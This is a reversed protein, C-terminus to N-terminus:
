RMLVTATDSNVVTGDPATIRLGVTHQGDQLLRSTKLDFQFTDNGADYTACAGQQNGDFVLRVRCTPSLLALASADSIRGGTATALRFKVPITAGRQYTAKSFSAPFGGLVRYGVVYTHTLSSDNGALDEADVTFAKTGISATDIASGDAVPGDCTDIESGGPEDECGYDALVSAGIEYRTGPDPPTTITITPATSDDSSPTGLLVSVDATFQNAIVLDLAGDSNLLDLAIAAAGNGAENTVQTAFTGDGGGLLVSVDDIDGFYNTVALDLDGDGDLDGTGLGIPTDGTAYEVHTPFGGTGDGLLVSVDTSGFGNAVAVDLDTDGDFDGAVVSIPAEGADHVVDTDFTGDGNGLLIAVGSSGASAVALDLNADADFHGTAISESTSGAPYNDAAAFTGDGNGLLVSVEGVNENAVLLDPTTDDDVDAVTVWIPGAGTVYTVQTGFTGDGNGLLVSVTDDDNNAVAADISGDDDFDGTTVSAPDGGAAEDIATDFPFAGAVGALSAVLLGSGTVFAVLRASRGGSFQHM